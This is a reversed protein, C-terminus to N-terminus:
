RFLQKIEKRFFDMDERNILFDSMKAPTIKLFVIGQYLMSASYSISATIGAGTIGVSPILTFGFVITFVVGIASSITNHYHKGVGSYYHSFIMSLSMALIGPTLSQIITHLGPFEKGFIFTFVNGPILNLVLLMLATTVLVFKLFRLTLEVAYAPSDVNSIKSYQVMSVSKGTLWIGESLKNGVDYIGLGAKGIYSEIIYYSLRYNTLQLLNAFQVFSGYKLIQKIIHPLGKLSAPRIFPLILFFSLFFTSGFALYLAYVYYLVEKHKLLYFFIIVALILLVFQLLTILNYSKIKEKGLLFTMQISGFAQILSLFTIHEVFKSPILGTINLLAAGAFASIAAWIYSPILLLFANHRPILYVLAGGGVFNSILLIITIGLVILAVEGVGESGLARANIIVIIFTIFATMLRTGATGLIKKLM